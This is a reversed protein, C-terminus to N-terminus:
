KAQTPAPSVQSFLLCGDVGRLAQLTPVVRREVRGWAQGGRRAESHSELGQSLTPFLLGQLFIKPLLLLLMLKFYCCM